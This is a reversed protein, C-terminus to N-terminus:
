NVPNVLLQVGVGGRDQVSTAFPLCLNCTVRLTLVPTCSRQVSFVLIFAKAYM